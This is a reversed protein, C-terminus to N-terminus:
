LLVKFSQEFPENILKNEFNDKFRKLLSGYYSTQKGQSIKLKTKSILDDLGYKECTQKRNRGIKMDQAFVPVYYDTM